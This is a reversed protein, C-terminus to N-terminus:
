GYYAQHGSHHQTGYRGMRSVGLKHGRLDSVDKIDQRNIGTSIAWRLKTEVYTGVLSYGAESKILEGTSENNKNGLGAIWGETLGIAVDIEKARLSTIMHGTGSPFAVLTASLGFYEQAFYLPTSFHEPVYGIRLPEDMMTYLQTVLNAPLRHGPQFPSTM